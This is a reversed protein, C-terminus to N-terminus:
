RKWWSFAVTSAPVQISSLRWPMRQCCRRSRRAWPWHGLLDKGTFRFRYRPALSPLVLTWSPSAIGTRLVSLVWSSAEITQWHRWHVSLCGGVQLLPSVKDPPSKGPGKENVELTAPAAPPGSFPHRVKTVGRRGVLSPLPLPPTLRLRSSHGHFLWHFVAVTLLPPRCPDQRPCDLQLNALFRRLICRRSFLLTTRRMKTLASDLLPAPFIGSSSPLDAYRLSEVEEAPVMSRADLLLSDRHSLVLNGLATVGQTGLFELSRSGSLMLQEFNGRVKDPLHERFGECTSLWWDLWFTVECVSSLM